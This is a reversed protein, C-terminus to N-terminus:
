DQDPPEADRLEQGLRVIEDFDLDDKCIGTIETIWNGKLPVVRERTVEAAYAICGDIDKNKLNPYSHLIEERTIGAASNDM